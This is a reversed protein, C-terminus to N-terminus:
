PPVPVFSAKDRGSPACSLTWFRLYVCSSDWECNSPMLAQSERMILYADKIANPGDTGLAEQIDRKDLEMRQELKEVVSDHLQAQFVPQKVPALTQPDIAKNPDAGTDVYEEIPQKLYEDLNTSFWLHQRIEPITLRQVPDINLMKRILNKPGLAVYKPTYYIGSLIEEYLTVLDEDDFPFEGVLLVYLTIGCSWVDVEPGAYHKGSLLEPAAYNPSGCKTKLLSDETMVNSLGFDVIKINLNGDLLLNEPKLDRHVIKHRHCYEVGSIIQQFFRRAKNETLRGHKVLYDLLEGGVYELVMVISTPTAITTYRCLEALTEMGNKKPKVEM